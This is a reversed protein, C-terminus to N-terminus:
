QSNNRNKVSFHRFRTRQSKSFHSLRVYVENM